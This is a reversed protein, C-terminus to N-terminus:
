SVSSAISLKYDERDEEVTPIINWDDQMPIIGWISIDSDKVEIKEIVDRLISRKEEFSLSVCGAVIRVTTITTPIAPVIIYWL